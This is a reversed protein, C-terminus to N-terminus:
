KFYYENLVDFIIFCPYMCDYFNHSIIIIHTSINNMFLNIIKFNKVM